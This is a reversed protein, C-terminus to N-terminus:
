QGVGGTMRVFRVQMLRECELEGAEKRLVVLEQTAGIGGEDGAGHRRKPAAPRAGVIARM